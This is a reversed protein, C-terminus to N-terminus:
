VSELTCVCVIFHCPNTLFLYLLREESFIYSMSDVYYSVKIVNLAPLLYRDKDM